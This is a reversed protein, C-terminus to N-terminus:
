APASDNHHKRPMPTKPLVEIENKSLKLYVTDDEIRKIQAVPITVEKQGWLHGERLVLHTILQSTPDIIFEDVHGIPGDTAVVQAGRDIAEEGEPVLEHELIFVSPETTVTYWFGHPSAAPIFEAKTFPEMRALDDKCCSLHIEQPTSEVIQDVPILRQDDSFTYEQVVVHTVQETKPNLIVHTSHGCHGDCCIVEVNIPIDM